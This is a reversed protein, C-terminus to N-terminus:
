PIIDHPKTANVPLVSVTNPRRYITKKRKVENLTLFTKLHGPRADISSRGKAPSETRTGFRRPQEGCPCTPTQRLTDHLHCMGSNRTRVVFRSTSVCNVFHPCM